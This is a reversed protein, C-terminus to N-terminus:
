SAGGGASSAQLAREACDLFLHLVPLCEHEFGPGKEMQIRATCSRYTEQAPGCAAEIITFHETRRQQCAKLVGAAARCQESQKGHTNVAESVAAFEEDCGKFICHMRHIAAAFARGEASTSGVHTGDELTLSGPANGM